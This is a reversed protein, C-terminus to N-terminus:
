SNEQIVLFCYALPAPGIKHGSLIRLQLDPARQVRNGLCAADAAGSLKNSSIKPFGAIQIKVFEGLSESESFIKIIVTGCKPM